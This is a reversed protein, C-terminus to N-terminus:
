CFDTCFSSAVLEASLLFPASGINRIRNSADPVCPPGTEQVTRLGFSDSRAAYGNQSRALAAERQAVSAEREALAREREALDWEREELESEFMDLEGRTRGARSRMALMTEIHHLMENVQEEKGDMGSM